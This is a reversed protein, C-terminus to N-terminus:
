WRGRGIESRAVFALSWHIKVMQDIRLQDVGGFRLSGFDLGPSTRGL